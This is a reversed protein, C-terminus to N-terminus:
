ALGNAALVQTLSLEIGKDKLLNQHKRFLKIIIDERDNVAGYKMQAKCMPCLCVGNDSTFISQGFQLGASFPVIPAVDMYPRGLSDMFTSHSPDNECKFGERKIIEEKVEASFEAAGNLVDLQQFMPIDMKRKCREPLIDIGKVEWVLACYQEFYEMLTNELDGPEPLCNTDTGISVIEGKRLFKPIWDAHEEAFKDFEETFKDEVQLVDKYDARLRAMGGEENKRNLYVALLFYENEPSLWLGFEPTMEDDNAATTRQWFRIYTATNGIGRKSFPDVGYYSANARVAYDSSNVGLMSLISLPLEYCAIAKHEPNEDFTDFYSALVDSPKRVYASLKYYRIDVNNDVFPDPTYGLARAWTRIDEATLKQRGATLKSTKSTSWGTLEALDSSRLGQKETEKGLLERVSDLNATHVFSDSVLSETITNTVSQDNDYNFFFM